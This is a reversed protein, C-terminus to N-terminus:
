ILLAMRLEKWRQERVKNGKKVMFFTIFIVDLSEEELEEMETLIHNGGGTGECSTFIYWKIM